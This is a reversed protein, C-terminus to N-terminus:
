WHEAAREADAIEVDRRHYGCEEVLKKAAVLDDKDRFLRARHLLVDAMHLKMSGREAINWAEDLDAEAADPNDNVHYFLARTLLGSLLYYTYGSQRLDDVATNIHHQTTTAMTSPQNAANLLSQYLTVRALTLHNNAIDLLSATPLNKRRELESSGREFVESCAQLLPERTAHTVVRQEHTATNGPLVIRERWVAQDVGTLLADCYQFGSVSYLWTHEPQDKTQLVEAQRFWNLASERQGAQHMADGARVRRHIRQFADKSRDAFEISQEANCVANTVQGLTLELESLNSAMAAAEKWNRQEILRELGSQMPKLAESLRGLARLCFAAENLLWAQTATALNPSVRRWPENFFCAIAGLDAGFAGLKNSSYFGDGGTGRLIRDKYVEECAQQHLGAWCGHAVAQYLPQLDALDDPRHETSETLYEYLRRHAAQWSDFRQEKLKRAFYERILPHADISHVVPPETDLTILGLDRLHNLTAMWDRDSLNQLPETLDPIVPEARLADLCGSSAPRDFLGLLRLVALYRQGEEENTNLWHVYAGMVRFAHDAVNIQQFHITDRQRIDGSHKGPTILDLYRGLLQLTLAHGNIERSAAKLEADDASIAKSGAYRTGAQWLLEAGAKESLHELPWEVATRIAALDTLPERTTIVCLGKFPRQALGKLLAKLGPDKLEGALPGPPYQLPELGDLILLTKHQAILQSLRDGRDHPSGVTPDPDGFFRLAADIFQDASASSQERTGQSYFSWDFYRDVGQWKKKAFRSMWEHALSTKGVGGWAVLTFIHASKAKWANNLRRLEDSRGILKTASHRLKTIAIKPPPPTIILQDQLVEIQHDILDRDTKTEEILPDLRFKEEVRTELLRQEQLVALKRSLLDRHQELKQIEDILHEQSRAQDDNMCCYGTLTM